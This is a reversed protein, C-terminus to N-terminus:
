DQLLIKRFNSIFYDIKFQSSAPSNLYKEINKLYSSFEKEGISSIRAHMEEFNKFDRMDIFCNKPVYKEINPAGLYIPVCGAIFADFIKETIYGPVNEQNEYCICFRYGSMAEKKSKIEGKYSPYVLTKKINFPSLPLRALTRMARNVQLAQLLPSHFVPAQWGIGYLDFDVPHFKEMFRVAKTRMTYLQGPLSSYKNASVMCLLKRKSFQASPLHIKEKQLFPMTFNNKIYKKGDVLNDNWTLIKKFPAHLSTDSNKPHITPPEYLLSYMKCSLPSNAAQTFYQNTTPPIEFFVIAHASDFNEAMDATKIDFGKAAFSKKLEIFCRSSNDRNVRANAPNFLENKEYAPGTAFLIEKM